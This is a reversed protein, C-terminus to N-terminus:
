DTGGVGSFCNFCSVTPEEEAERWLVMGEEGTVERVEGGKMKDGGVSGVDCANNSALLLGSHLALAESGHRTITTACKESM